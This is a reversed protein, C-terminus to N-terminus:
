ELTFRSLVEPNKLDEKTFSGVSGDYYVVNAHGKHRYALRGDATSEESEKYSQFADNSNGAKLLWDQCDAFAVTQSPHQFTTTRAQWNGWKSGWDPRGLAANFAINMGYNGGILQARTSGLMKTAPCLYGDAFKFWYFISSDKEAQDAQKALELYRLFDPNVLWSPQIDGNDSWGVTPVYMGDHDNAYMINAMQLNRLNSLCKTNAASWKMRGLAPMLLAALLGIIAVVVLLEILTFGARRSVSSPASLTNM